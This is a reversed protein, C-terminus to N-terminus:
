SVSAIRKLLLEKLILPNATGKGTKMCQGILFQLATAKGNKYAIVTDSHETLVSDIILLLEGETDQRSLGRERSLTEPDSHKFVVEALIDKATRSSIVGNDLMLILKAFYAPEASAFSVETHQAIYGLLDSTVYHALKQRNSNTIDPKFTELAIVASMYFHAAEPNSVLIEVINSALGLNSLKIRKDSPKEPMMEDLRSSALEPIESINLKPLDPDPFYRYDHSSEKKRQSVSVNATEDWGRTEQVVMEGKELCVTQREIEYAIAAEVSKFSNINKVEVKTGLMDSASISINVEVRMEGREMNADSVGLARLLLQLERAFNSATKADHIVPETVLEMLPVGARNFDILTGEARHLSRATDEELHVRTIAVGSLEGGSVLPHAYQSIQYGKPIDPYFYNKRDFESYTALTGGLARGVLLVQRVAMFNIVPLTGPHGMCVPCIHTNPSQEHPANRSGCFMKTKTKLEAHIELGITPTYSTAM